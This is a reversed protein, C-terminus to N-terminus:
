GRAAHRRRQCFLGTQVRTFGAQFSGRKRTSELVTPLISRTAATAPPDCTRAEGVTPVPCADRAPWTEFVPLSPLNGFAFGELEAACSINPAANLKRRRTGKTRVVHLLKLAAGTPHREGREWQSVTQTAVNLFGALVAQSVGAKERVRAIETPSLPPLKPLADRGLMRLTTKELEADDIAGIERLGRSIEVIESRLRTKRDTTRAPENRTTM